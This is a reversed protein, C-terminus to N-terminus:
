FPANSDKGWEWDRYDEGGRLHNADPCLNDLTFRFYGWQELTWDHESSVMGIAAAHLGNLVDERNPLSNNMIATGM